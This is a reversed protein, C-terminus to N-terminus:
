NKKVHRDISQRNKVLIRYEYLWNDRKIFHLVRHAKEPLILKNEDILSYFHQKFDELGTLEYQSWNLALFHDYYMDVIVPPYHGFQPRM